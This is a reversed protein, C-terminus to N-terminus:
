EDEDHGGIRRNVGEENRMDPPGEDAVLVQRGRRSL